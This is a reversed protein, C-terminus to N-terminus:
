ASKPITYNCITIITRSENIPVAKYDDHYITYTDILTVAVTIITYFSYKNNNVTTNYADM